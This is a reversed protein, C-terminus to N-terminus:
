RRERNKKTRGDGRETQTVGADFIKENHIRNVRNLCKQQIRPHKRPVDHFGKLDYNDPRLFNLRM